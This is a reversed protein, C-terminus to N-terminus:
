EEKGFSIIYQKDSNSGNLKIGFINSEFRGKNSDSEAFLSEENDKYFYPRDNKKLGYFYKLTQNWLVYLFILNGNHITCLTIFSSNEETFIVVTTLNQDRVIDNELICIGSNFEYKQCTTNIYNGNKMIAHTYNCESLIFPNILIIFICFCLFNNKSPEM